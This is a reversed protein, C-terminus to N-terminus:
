AVGKLRKMLIHEVRHKELAIRLPFYNGARERNLIHWRIILSRTDMPGKLEKVITKPM